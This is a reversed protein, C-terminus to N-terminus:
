SKTKKSDAAGPKPPPPPTPPGGRLPMALGGERAQYLLLNVVLLRENNVALPNVKPDGLSPDLALARTFADVAEDYNRMYDHVVGIDYHTIAKNPDLKLAKEYAVLASSLKGRQLRITGLNLWYDTNTKDISTAAELFAEADKLYYKRGLLVGFDDMDDPTPHGSMRGLYDIVIPDSAAPSTAIRACIKKLDAPLVAPAESKSTEVTPIPNAPPPVAASPAAPV